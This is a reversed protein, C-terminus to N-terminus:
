ASIRRKEPLINADLVYTSSFRLYQDASPFFLLSVFCSAAISLLSVDPVFHAAQFREQQTTRKSMIIIAVVSDADAVFYPM